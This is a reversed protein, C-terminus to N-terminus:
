TTPALNSRFWGLGCGGLGCGGVTGAERYFLTIFFYKKQPGLKNYAQELKLFTGYVMFVCIYMIVSNQAPTTKTPFITLFLESCSLPIKGEKGSVEVKPTFLGCVM